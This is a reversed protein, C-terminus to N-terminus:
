SSAEPQAPAFVPAANTMTSRGGKTSSPRMALGGSETGALSSVAATMAAADDVIDLATRGRWWSITALAGGGLADLASSPKMDSDFLQLLGAAVGCAGIFGIRLWLSYALIARESRKRLQPAPHADIIRDEM